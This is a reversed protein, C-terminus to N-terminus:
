AASRLMVRRRVLMEGGFLLGSLLYAVLGNYLTWLAMDGSLATAASIAANVLLFVFWVQSVRRTYCIGAPPLDPQRLRAIIEVLSPPKLLSIGFAAAFCLSMLVPYSKAGLDPDVLALLITAAMTVLLPGLMIRLWAHGRLMALRGVILALAVLVFVSAPVQGLSAYVAFPYCLGAL